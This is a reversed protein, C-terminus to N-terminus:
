LLQECVQTAMEPHLFYFYQLMTVYAIEHLIPKKFDIAPRSTRLSITVYALPRPAVVGAQGALVLVLLM